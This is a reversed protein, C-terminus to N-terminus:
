AGVSEVRVVPPIALMTLGTLAMWALVCYATPLGIWTQLLAPVGLVALAASWKPLVGTRWVIYATAFILAASGLYGCTYLWLALGLFPQAYETVTVDGFQVIAAPVAVEAALGASTLALYLAGGLLAVYAAGTVGSATRLMAVLVGVFLLAFLVHLLALTGNATLFAAADDFYRHADGPARPHEPSGAVLAPILAGAAAVGCLGGIRITGSGM